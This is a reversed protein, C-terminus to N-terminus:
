IKFSALLLFLNCSKFYIFFQTYFMLATKKTKDFVKLAAAVSIFLGPDRM